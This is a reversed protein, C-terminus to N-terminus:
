FFFRPKLLQFFFGDNDENILNKFKKTSFFWHASKLAPTDLKCRRGGGGGAGGKGGALGVEPEIIIYEGIPNRFVESFELIDECNASISTTIFFSVGDINGGLLAACLSLTKFASNLNSLM